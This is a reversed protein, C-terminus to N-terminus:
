KLFIATHSISMPHFNLEKVLYKAGDLDDNKGSLSRLVAVGQEEIFGPFYYM